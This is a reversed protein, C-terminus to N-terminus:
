LCFDVLGDLCSNMINICPLCRVFPEMQLLDASALPRRSEDISAAKYVGHPQQCHSVANLPRRARRWEELQAGHYVKPLVELLQMYM